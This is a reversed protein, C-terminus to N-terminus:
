SKFTDADEKEPLMLMSAMLYFPFSFVMFYVYRFETAVPTAILVTLLLAASPLYLILKQLERRVIACGICFILVWCIVGMSWLTGYIPVMGGLKISIEKLKVVLPGRILPTHSVGLSTASVGEADAVLYFFDPYWYGYTQRIYATLYDGPYRLGLSLWLKFFEQRHEALYEPHGARVLEKMNDAFYPVYLDKIYTLDIVNEILELEDDTLKRDNCLVSAVQQIPISLSEVLDPQTVHLANMLPYKILVSVLFIAFFVPYLTKKNKRFYFLLIPFCLLFAYWGNSRFLCLMMGSIGMICLDAYSAKKICRLLTCGFCLVAAAFLIDKWITVSYVAHYPVLAYFLTILFCILPKIRYQKLTNIFYSVSFSLVCMQFFTYCSLAVLMSGTIALGMDYFLKILLTHMWPHHNSYPIIGLVQEFQNISDPTMIGPYQYLFYPLWCFMCLLFACLGTHKLYFAYLSGMIRAFRPHRYNIYVLQPPCNYRDSFLVASLRKKDGAIAFLLKLLHYFLVVFGLFAASVIGLRFLPNTLTEIYIPYDVAMYLTSFIVATIICVLPTKRSIDPSSKALKDNVYGYFIFCIIFFILTFINGPEMRGAKMLAWSTFFSQLIRLAVPIKRTSKM